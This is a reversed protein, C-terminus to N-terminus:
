DVVIAAAHQAGLGLGAFACKLEVAASASVVSGHAPSVIEVGYSGDQSGGPRLLAALVLLGLLARPAWPRLM